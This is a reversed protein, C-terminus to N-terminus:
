PPAVVQQPKPRRRHHNTEPSPAQGQRRCPLPHKSRAGTDKHSSGMRSSGRHNDPPRHSGRTDPGMRKHSGGRRRDGIPSRHTGYPRPIGRRDCRDSHRGVLCRLRHRCLGGCGYVRGATGPLEEISQRSAAIPASALPPTMCSGAAGGMGAGRRSYESPRNRGSGSRIQRKRCARQHSAGRHRHRSPCGLMAHRHAQRRDPPRTRVGHEECSLSLRDTTATASSIKLTLDEPATSVSCWDAGIM